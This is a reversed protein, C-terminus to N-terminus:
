HKHEAILSSYEVSKGKKIEANEFLFELGKKFLLRGEMEQRLESSNLFTEAQEEPLSWRNKIEERIDDDTVQINEIKTVELLILNEGLAKRSTEEVDKKLTEHNMGVKKAIDELRDEKSAGIRNKLQDVRHEFEREIMTRPIELKSEDVLKKLLDEYTKNKLLDEGHETLEKTVKERLEKVSDGMNIEKAFDDNLEPLEPFLCQHVQVSINLKKGAYKPDPFEEPIAVEFDRNEGEKVGELNEDIGPFGAEGLRFQADKKTYLSKGSDKINLDVTLQDGKEAPSEERSKLVASRNRLNEIYEDIDSQSISLVDLTGKIKKYKGPKVEPFTDYTGSYSAGKTRDFKEVEFTPVNIPPPDLKEMLDKMTESILIKAADEIVSEGLQKEVMELPAKGARFGPIKVKKSAQRYAEKYANEVEDSDHSVHIQVSANENKKTKYEM